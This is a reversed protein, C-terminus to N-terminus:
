EIENMESEYVTPDNKSSVLNSNPVTEAIIKSESLRLKTKIQNHDVNAQM